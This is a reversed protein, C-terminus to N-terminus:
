LDHIIRIWKNRCVFRKYRYNKTGSGENFDENGYEIEWFQVDVGFQSWTLSVTGSGIDTVIIASPAVCVSDDVAQQTSCFSFLSITILLLIYKM